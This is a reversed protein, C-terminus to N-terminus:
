ERRGPSPNSPPPAGEEAPAFMRMIRLLKAISLMQELAQLQEGGMFPRLAQLLNTYTDDQANLQSMMQYLRLFMEPNLDFGPTFGSGGGAASATRGGTHAQEEKTEESPPEEMGAVRSAPGPEPESAPPTQRTSGKDGAGTNMGALMGLLASLDHGGQGPSASGGGAGAGSGALMGLLASLDPGGQGSSPSGGGASAGSGALMGLLASLDPGGQGSSASGGGATQGQLSSLMQMMQSMQEPDQTLSALMASLDDNAAM